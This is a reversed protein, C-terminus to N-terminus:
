WSQRCRYVAVVAAGVPRPAEVRRHHVQLAVEDRDAQLLPQQRSRRDLVEFIAADRELLSGLHTFPLFM